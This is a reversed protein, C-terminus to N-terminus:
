PAGALLMVDHLGLLASWSMSLTCAAWAIILLMERHQAHSHPRQATHLVRRGSNAHRNVDERVRGLHYDAHNVAWLM